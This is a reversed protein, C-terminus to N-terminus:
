LQNSHKPKISSTTVHELAPVALSTSVTRLRWDEFNGSPKYKINKLKTLVAPLLNPLGIINHFEANPLKIRKLFKDFMEFGLDDRHAAKRTDLKLKEFNSTVAENDRDIGIYGHSVTASGMDFIVVGYKKLIPLAEKLRIDPCDIDSYILSSHPSPEKLCHDLVLIRAYDARSYVNRPGHRNFEGMLYGKEGKELPVFYPDGSYDPIEQLDHVCVNGHQGNEQVFSDLCFLSYEDLLSKDVWIRFDAEPYKNANRIARKFNGFNLSCEEKDPKPIVKRSNIWVYNVLASNSKVEGESAGVEQESHNESVHQSSM